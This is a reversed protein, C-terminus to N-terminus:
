FIHALLEAFHTFNSDYYKSEYLTLINEIDEAPIANAPKRGKNGHVFFQKGSEKYGQIMRNITRTSCGLKLAANQKNGNTDVLKKIVQYKFDETM